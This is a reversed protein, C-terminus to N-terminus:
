NTAPQTQSQTSEQTPEDTVTDNIKIIGYKLKVTLIKAVCEDIQAQKIFGKDLASKIAKVYADVDNPCVFMNVGANISKTVIDDITYLSLAESNLIPSLVLGSFKLEKILIETVLRNSMFAPVASDIPSLKNHSLMIVDANESIANEYPVFDSTKMDEYTKDTDEIVPFSNIASVIGMERYAKMDETVQKQVLQANSMFPNKDDPYSSPAFNLNFGYKNLNTAIFNADYSYKTDDAANEATTPSTNKINLKTALPSNEGGKETIAIFMPHKAFEKTKSILDSTQTSNEFNQASYYIGGVNKESIIQKTTDGAVTAVDVGTLAEPTVMLLQYIKEDDTMKDLYEKALASFQVDPNETHPETPVDTEIPKTPAQTAFTEQPKDDSGLVSTVAFVGGVVLAIGLLVILIITIIKGIGPKQAHRYKSM